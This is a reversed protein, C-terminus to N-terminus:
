VPLHVPKAGGLGDLYPALSTPDFAARRQAHEEESMSQGREAPGTPQNAAIWDSVDEGAIFSEPSLEGNLLAVIDTVSAAARELVAGWQTVSGAIKEGTLPDEADMMLAWSMVQPENVMTILNFRLDGIRPSTDKDGCLAPDDGKDPDVPNICLV